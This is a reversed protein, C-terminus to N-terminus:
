LKATYGLHEKIRNNCGHSMCVMMTAKPGSVHEWQYSVIGRDDTSASGNLVVLRTPLNVAIDPGAEAVPGKDEAIILVCLVTM